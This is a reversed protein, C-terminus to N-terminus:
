INIYSHKFFLVFKIASCKKYLVVALSSNRRSLLNATVEIQEEDVILLGFLIESISYRTTFMSWVNILNRANYEHM